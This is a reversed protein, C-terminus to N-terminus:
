KTLSDRLTNRFRKFAMWQATGGDPESLEIKDSLAIAEELAERRVEDMAAVIRSRVESKSRPVAQTFDRVMEDLTDTPM